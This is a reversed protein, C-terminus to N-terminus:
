KYRAQGREKIGEGYVSNSDVQEGFDGQLSSWTLQSKPARWAHLAVLSKKGPELFGGLFVLGELHIHHEKVNLSLIVLM